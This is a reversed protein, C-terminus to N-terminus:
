CCSLLNRQDVAQIPFCDLKAIQQIDTGANFFRESIETRPNRQATAGFCEDSNLPSVLTLGPQAGCRETRNGLQHKRDCFEFESMAIM